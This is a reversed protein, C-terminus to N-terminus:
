LNLLGMEMRFKLVRVRYIPRPSVITSIFFILM